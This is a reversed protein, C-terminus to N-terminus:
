QQMVGRRNFILVAALFLVAGMVLLALVPVGIDALGGGLALTAFGDLGWANPTIKNIVNFWGPMSGTNIFTGGLLGFTLMLATGIWTVQGPTKAFSAILMGWGVAAFVAALTLVLVGLADGWQLQFFLASAIILILVQAVGTLFIGLVKGGLVQVATTPSVLLRPLTGQNREDLLVRGGYSATYMLFMLAMGPAMYALVDFEITKGENTVNNLTIATSDELADALNVGAQLGAQEADQVPVLGNTILQTIVVQAGARGIEVQSIFQDLITRIVGASTPSTPNSYFEIQVTDTQVPQGEVPIISTTFGEPIIIAATAADDDIQQRALAADDMEIPRVLENLDSSNFVEVLANGLEGGDLNVLVVPINSIGSSGSGSFHGTVFGLGLTLLFPALLMMLLASADRFALKIDKLGILFTKKM